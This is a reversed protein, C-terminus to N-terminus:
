NRGRGESFVDMELYGAVNGGFFARKLTSNYIIFSLAAM